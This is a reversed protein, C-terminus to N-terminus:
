EAGGELPPVPEGDENRLRLSRHESTFFVTRESRRMHQLVPHLQRKPIGVADAVEGWEPGQGTTKWVYEICRLVEAMLEERSMGVSQAIEEVLAREAAAHHERVEWFTPVEGAELLVRAHPRFPKWLARLYGLRASTYRAVEEDTLARHLMGGIITHVETESLPREGLAWRRPRSRRREQSVAKSVEREDM